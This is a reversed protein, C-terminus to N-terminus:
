AEIRNKSWTSCVRGSEIMQERIRDGSDRSPSDEAKLGILPGEMPLLVPFSALEPEPYALDGFRIDIQTPIRADVSRAPLKIRV